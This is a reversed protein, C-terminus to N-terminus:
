FGKKYNPRQKKCGIKKKGIATGHMLYIADQACEKTEFTAIAFGKSAGDKDKAVKLNVFGDLHRFYENIDDDELAYDLNHVFVQNPIVRDTPKSIM